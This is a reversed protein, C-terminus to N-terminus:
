YYTFYKYVTFTPLIDDTTKQHKIKKMLRNFKKLLDPYRRGFDTADFTLICYTIKYERDEYGKEDQQLDFNRAFIDFLPRDTNKYEEWSKLFDMLDDVAKDNKDQQTEKKQHKIISTM